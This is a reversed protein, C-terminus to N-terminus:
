SAAANAVDRTCGEWNEGDAEEEDGAEVVGNEIVPPGQITHDDDDDHLDM